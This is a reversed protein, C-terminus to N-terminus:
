MEPEPLGGIGGGGGGGGASRNNSINSRTVPTSRGQTMEPEPLGGIAGGGGGGGFRDNSQNSKTKTKVVAPPDEPPGQLQELTLETGYLIPGQMPLTAVVNSGSDMVTLTIIPDGPPLGNLSVAGWVGNSDIITPTLVHGNIVVFGNTPLLQGLIYLLATPDSSDIFTPEVSFIEPQPLVLRYYKATSLAEPAMWRVPGNSSSMVIDETKWVSADGLTTASQIKYTVDRQGDWEISAGRTYENAGTPPSIELRLSPVAPASLCVFTGLLITAICTCHQLPTSKMTFHSKPIRCGATHTSCICEPNLAM